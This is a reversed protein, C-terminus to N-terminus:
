LACWWGNSGGGQLVCQTVQDPVELWLPVVRFLPCVYARGVNASNLTCVPFVWWPAVSSNSCSSHVHSIQQFAFLM